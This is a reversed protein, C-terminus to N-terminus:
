GGGEPPAALSRFYGELGELIGRAYAEQFAPMRLWAEHTPLMIYAGETLVSPMWPNRVVALNDFFTGEDFLGLHRVLGSQVARALPSSPAHFWYTGTGLRGSLPNIGDPLANLHISVLAHANARRGILARQDLALPADTTRTLLVRAGRAELMPVLREAVERVPTPEYLGTPGTSGAPPHGPDVAISLGELPRAATVTPPRRVRLVLSSGQWFVQWGYAPRALHLVFRTRDSADQWATVQEIVGSSGARHGLIDTSGTTGYLTLILRRGDPEVRYAPREGVPIVLDAWLSDALVRANGAVRRPSVAGVPLAVADDASVWVELQSDLRVRLANGQRGTVPLITGPLLFWSYTGSPTPRAIVVRESDDASAGQPVLQVLAPLVSDALALPGVAARVTDRGRAVLLTAARTLRGAAVETQFSRADGRGNQGNVATRAAGSVLPVVVSDALRLSVTARESTRLGVRVTEDARYAARAGAGAFVSGPEIALKGTDVVVVRPAPPRVTHKARVTDAGLVAVLEYSAPTGPPVPLWGLFAGNPEVPVPAGNITLTAGGHGISGFIFNTDRASIEANPKPYIVRIQLPGAVLAPKPWEPAAAPPTVGPVGAAAPTAAVPAPAPRPTSPAACAAACLALIPTCSTIRFVPM